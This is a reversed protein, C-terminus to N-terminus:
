KKNREYNNVIIDLGKRIVPKTSPLQENVFNAIQKGAGSYYFKVFKEGLYNNMLVQDRIERLTKVQPANVDEYVATAVFCDGGFLGDGRGCKKCRGNSFRDDDDFDSDGWDYGGGVCTDLVVNNGLGTNSM